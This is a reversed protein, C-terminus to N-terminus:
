HTHRRAIAVLGQFGLPGAFDAWDCGPEACHASWGGGNPDQVLNVTGETLRGDFDTM